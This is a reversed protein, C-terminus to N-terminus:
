LGYINKLSSVDESTIKHTKSAAYDRYMISNINSSHGLGLAHGIEHITVDGLTVDDLIAGNQRKHPIQITAKKIRGNKFVSRTLGLIEGKKLKGDPIKPVFVVNLNANKPSDIFVFDINYDTAKIWSRFSKKVIPRRRDSEIYVKIKEYNGWYKANTLVESYCSIASLFLFGILFLTFNKM